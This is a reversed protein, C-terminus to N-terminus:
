NEDASGTRRLMGAFRKRSLEFVLDVVHLPHCTVHNLWLDDAIMREGIPYIFRERIVRETENRYSIFIRFSFVVHWLRNHMVQVSGFVPTIQTRPIFIPTAFCIPQFYCAFIAYM